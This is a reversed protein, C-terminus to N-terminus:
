RKNKLAKIEERQNHAHIKSLTRYFRATTITEPTVMVKLYATVVDLRSDFYEMDIVATNETRLKDLQKKLQKIRILWKKARGVVTNLKNIMVMGMDEPELRCFLTWGNLIDVLSQDFSLQLHNIIGDVCHARATLVEIEKSVEFVENYEGNSSLESMETYIKDWADMLVGKPPNGEIILQSLDSILICDIFRSLPM